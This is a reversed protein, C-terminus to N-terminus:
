NETSGANGSNPLQRLLPRVAAQISDLSYGRQDIKVGIEKCLVTQFEKWKITRGPVQGLALVREAATQIINATSIPGPRPMRRGPTPTETADSEQPRAAIEASGAVAKEVPPRAAQPSEKSAQRTPMLYRFLESATLTPTFPQRPLTPLIVRGTEWDIRADDYLVAYHPQYIIEKLRFAKEIRAIARDEPMIQALLSVQEPLTLRENPNPDAMQGSQKDGVALRALETPMHWSISHAWVAFDRLRVTPDEDYYSVGAHNLPGPLTEGLCRKALALLKEFEPGEDYRRGAMIANTNARRLHRPDISLTLAVAEYLTM